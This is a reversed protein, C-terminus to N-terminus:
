GLLITRVIGLPVLIVEVHALHDGRAAFGSGAYAGAIGRSRIRLNWKATYDAHRVDARDLNIGTSTGSPCQGVRRRSRPGLGVRSGLISIRLPQLM